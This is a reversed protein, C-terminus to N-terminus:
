AAVPLRDYQPAAARTAEMADRLRRVLELSEVELSRAIRAGWLRALGRARVHCDVTVRTGDGDQEVICDWIAVVGRVRAEVVHSFPRLHVRVAYERVALGAGSRRVHRLRAGARVPGGGLVEARVVGPAWAPARDPDTLFDFVVDVPAPVFGSRVFRDEM